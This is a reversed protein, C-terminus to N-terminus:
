VATKNYYSTSVDKYVRIKEPNVKIGESFDDVIIRDTGTYKKYITSPDIRYITTTELNKLYTWYPSYGPYPVTIALPSWDQWKNYSGVNGKVAGWSRFSSSTLAETNDYLFYSINNYLLPGNLKIQGAYGDFDLLNNFAIGLVIWEENDLYPNVCPTGNVHFAVSMDEENTARNIAKIFGRKGSSEAQLYLDIINNDKSEITTIKVPGTPFAIDAFKLWMQLSSVKVNNAAPINVPLVIGRETNLEFDGHIHMGSDRTLYLHPTSGKYIEIPNKAKFNYYYGTKSYPYIPNGYKTGVKTFDTKEYVQSVFQLNKLNVSNTISDKVNFDLHYVILLDNYNIENEYQDHTPPYIITGNVVEYAYDEWNETRADPDVSGNVYPKALGTFETLDKKSSDTLNQFSVYTKVVDGDTNYYRFKVSQQQMDQYDEWNTFLSNDLDQYTRPNDVNDYEVFLDHYTWTEIYELSLTEIPEPYDINFQLQDLDYTTEGRYNAVSKSFYSLPVNDQWYGAVDIDIYFKSYNYKAKLTYNATHNFLTSGDTANQIYDGNDEKSFIGYPNDSFYSSIKKNNYGSDFGLSYLKAKTSDGGNNGVTLSINSYNSLFQGLNYESNALIYLDLGVIFKKTLDIIKIGEGIEFTSGSITALYRIYEGDSKILIQDNNNKNKLLFFPESGTSSNYGSQLKFIGYFSKIRENLINLNEYYIFTDNNFYVSPDLIISKESELTQADSMLSLFQNYTLESNDLNFTPLDYKPIQLSSKTNIINSSFGQKWNAFEPYNYNVKYDAFAYDFFTTVANSASNSIDPAQVAQGWVWRRKAVEVPVSYSYLAFSDIEIPDIDTHSYFGLWDQNKKNIANFELPFDLDNENFTISIVEEGNLLVTINKEIYRIHILMPRFWKGVYHSKFKNGISLTLFPGDIYLGDASNIPGFFKKPINTDANVRLWMEATYRNFKGKQNLFGYGPFILSPSGEFTTNKYIKSITDSGYVLPIGFNKCYLESGDTLYYADNGTSGYSTAVVAKIGNELNINTPLDQVITGLSTELFNEAWQSINLGNIFIEYDSFGAGGVITDAKIFVVVNEWEPRLQDITKHIFNWNNRTANTISLEELETETVYTVPNGNIDWAIPNDYQIGFYLKTIYQSTTKFYGSIVFNKYYSSLGVDEIKFLSNVTITSYSVPYNGSIKNLFSNSFPTDSPISTILSKTCNTSSWSTIKTLDRDDDSIKTIYDVKENLLWFAIPHESVVKESYLNSLVTM